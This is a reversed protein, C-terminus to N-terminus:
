HTNYMEGGAVASPAKLFFFRKHFVFVAEFAGKIPVFLWRMVFPKGHILVAFNPSVFALWLNQMIGVPLRNVVIKPKLSLCIRWGVEFFAEPLTGFRLAFSFRIHSLTGLVKPLHGLRCFSSQWLCFRSSTRKQAFAV